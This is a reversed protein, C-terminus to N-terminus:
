GEDETLENNESIEEAYNVQEFMVESADFGIGCDINLEDDVAKKAKEIAAEKSSSDIGSFSVCVSYCLEIDYKAM